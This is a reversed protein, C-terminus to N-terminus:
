AGSRYDRIGQFILKGVVSGGDLIGISKEGYYAARGHVSKMARTRDSGEAAARAAAEWAAKEDSSGANKLVEVAPCLADLITKEGPKSKAKEMISRIGGELALAIESLAAEEKGKLVKAMGMMGMALITGLSSPAAENFVGGCKLLLRGLDTEETGALYDAAARFGASMSIGLDGDGNQQDLEILYDRHVNILDSVRKLAGSLTKGNM